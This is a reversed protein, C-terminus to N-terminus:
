RSSRGARSRAPRRARRGRRQARARPEGRLQVLRRRGCSACSSSTARPPRRRAGGSRARSARRRRASPTPSPRGPRAARPPDELAVRLARTSAAAWMSSVPRSASASIRRRSPTSCAPSSRGSARRLRRQALELSQDLARAGGPEPSARRPPRAAGSGAPVVEGGVADHLLRQGVRDLVRPAAGVDTVTRQRAKTSSSSIRSLRSALGHVTWRSRGRARRCAVLAHPQVAAVSRRRAAGRRRSRTRAGGACLSSAATLM